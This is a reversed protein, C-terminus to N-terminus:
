PSPPTVNAIDVVSFYPNGGFVAITSSSIPAACCLKRGTNMRQVLTWSHGSDDPFFSWVWEAPQSISVTKENGGFALLYGNFLCLSMMTYPSDQHREWVSTSSLTFRNLRSTTALLRDIAVSYVARTLGAFTSGGMVYLRSRFVAASPGALAIPLSFAKHWQLSPLHLLEVTDVVRGLENIGGIVILYDGWCVAASSSRASPLPPLAEVWVKEQIDYTSIKRTCSHSITDIGGILVLERNVIVSAYYYQPAPQVLKAWSTINRTPCTYVYTNPQSTATAGGCLYLRQGSVLARLTVGQLGELLCRHSTWTFKTSKLRQKSQEMEAETITNPTIVAFGEESSDEGEDYLEEEEEEDELSKGTESSNVQSHGESRDKSKKSKKKRKLASRLRKTLGKNPNGSDM